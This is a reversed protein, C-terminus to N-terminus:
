AGDLVDVREQNELRRGDSAENRSGMWFMSGKGIKWVGEM